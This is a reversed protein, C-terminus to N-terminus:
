ALGRQRLWKPMLTEDVNRSVEPANKILFEAMSPSLNIHGFSGDFVMIKDTQAMRGAFKMATELNEATVAYDMFVPNSSDKNLMEAFDRGVVITPINEALESTPMLIWMHNIVLAKIAPNVAKVRPAGAPREFLAFGTAAPIVDLDLYDVTANVLTGFTIGGAHMYVPWKGADLVAICEDIKSFLETMKGFSKLAILTQRRNVENLDNGADVGAIGATSVSLVCGFTYKSQIFPSNFIARPVFNSSRPGFNFHHVGRTEYRAYGMSFPKLTRDMLRHWYIERLDGYHAHIFWDADYAKALGYLTGIETEIPVGRDFPTLRATKGDFYQDLKFYEILEDAERTGLGAGVRLRINNCGTREQVVDRITRIMEAYPEGGVIFFGHEDSLINVSDRHRIKSMDVGALADETIKRIISIDDGPLYIAKPIDPFLERVSLSTLGPLSAARTRPEPGYVSKMIIPPLIAQKQM